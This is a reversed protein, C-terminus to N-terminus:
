FKAFLTGHKQVYLDIRVAPANAGRKQQMCYCNCPLPRTGARPVMLARRSHYVVATKKEYQSRYNQSRCVM